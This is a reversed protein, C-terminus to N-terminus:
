YGFIYALLIIFIKSKVFLLAPISAWIGGDSDTTGM